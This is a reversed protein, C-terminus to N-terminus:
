QSICEYAAYEYMVSRLPKTPDYLVVAKQGPEVAQWEKLSVSQDGLLHQRDPTIFAYRLYYATSKGQSVRKSLVKGIIPTGMRCLQRERRPQIYLAHVFVGTILCWFSGFLWLTAIMKWPGLPSDVLGDHFIPGVSIARVVVTRDSPAQSSLRKYYDASIEKQQSRVGTPLPYSFSVHYQTRERRDTDTWIRGVRATHDEGFIAWIASGPMVVFLFFGGILMHPLLFM